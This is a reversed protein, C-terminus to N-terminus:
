SSYRISLYLIISRFIYNMTGHSICCVNIRHVIIMGGRKEDNNVSGYM